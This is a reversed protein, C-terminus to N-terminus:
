IYKSVTSASCGVAAAIEAQTYGSEAMARIKDIRFQPIEKTQRPTALQRVRDADAFQLIESLKSGSIAGAQIAEWERDSISIKVRKAGVKARASTLERQRVKKLEEKIEKKTLGAEEFAKKRIDVATNARRQAEREKPKNLRALRLQAELHEVEPKYAAKASASYVTGKTNLLELRARNELEKMSKAYEAYAREVPANTESVLTYPDDTDAMRTSVRTREKEKGTKPDTYFRKPDNIYILAGEPREPDYWPRGKQNVRPQGKAKPQSTESKAGSILTSASETYRGDVTRGMYKAKLAPIGNDIESQKYDLGHKEADIVVMSHRVARALEDESAGKITMDTILNSIVGMQKQTDTMKKFTGEPKGGYELKPDFDVLGKLPAHSQVRVKDTLPIVLVTDGDFDAGSLREAVKSSIGIADKPQEGLVRKGEPLKNNVRLIPIEFQGAHPFRILAADGGNQLHPAYVETDKIETLPLLVKYQQNPFAAAKLNVASAACDDAFASLMNKKVEPNTLACIEEFEAQKDAKALGLQRDWLEKPQKSLFQAPLERSWEGWDGEDARKNILSLHEQGDEGLYWTQGGREKILSGFPNEPDSTIPKLVTNSKPGLMPTGEKKNTNFIVDVGDPMDDGYVAMGKIYHTGDVLIRVQAYHSDGLSLDEVGRRLEIVGDKNIGGQEAYRIQVRSPDLSEPYSFAPRVAMGDETLLKEYDAVSYVNEFDYIDKHQKDKTALVLQNTQQGHVDTVQKIGGGYINYGDAELLYLAQQLREKSVGLTTEVGLGVDVMGKQDVIEKLYDALVRSQNARRNAEENLLSRVSSENMGMEKGIARLSLGQEQLAKAKAVLPAREESRAISLQARLEGVSRLDLESVIESDSMGESRMKEVRERFNKPRQYPDSGSGLPYRGSGRGPAGDLKGVGYHQIYEAPTEDVSQRHEGTGFFSLIMQAIKSM